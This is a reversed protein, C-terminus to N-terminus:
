PPEYLVCKFNSYAIYQFTITTMPWIIYKTCKHLWKDPIKQCLM